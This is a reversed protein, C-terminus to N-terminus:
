HLGQCAVAITWSIPDKIGMHFVQISNRAGFKWGLGAWVKM